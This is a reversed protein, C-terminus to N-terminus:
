YVIASVICMHEPLHNNSTWQVTIDFYKDLLKVVNVGSADIAHRMKNPYRCQEGDVRSCVKCRSCGASLSVYRPDKSEMELLENNLLTMYKRFIKQAFPIEVYEKQIEEPFNIKIVYVQIKDYSKWFDLIDDDFPPCSWM